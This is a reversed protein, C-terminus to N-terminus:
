KRPKLPKLDQVFRAQAQKMRELLEKDKSLDKKEGPDEDLDYLGIVRGSSTILKYPGDIFARREKNNPGETMDVFVPRKALPADPPSLADDLLSHGRVWDEPGRPIALGFADLVTPTIDIISRREKVVRPANGPVYLILPVRVLEEWVEFGHHTLGHEGFAEGHDATILIVTRDAYPAAAIADFIRGLQEDVFAVEGDYRDKPERGFNYKEHFVYEAHPDVWHAWLYFREDSGKLKDLAAIVNDAVKHGNSSNDSDVSIARPAASSDIVDYGREYGYGKRFFYWYGQVSLTHVGARQVREALFPVDPSFRDFHDWNRDAESSYRGLLAPGLSKSTYSALAYANEFLTSRAALEDLRPSVPRSKDARTYGLDWRFTDITLMVVNVNEPLRARAAPAQGEEQAPEPEAEAPPLLTADEGTCDEDVGNGPIDLAGPYREPDADDCDEGGFWRSAGDGDGDTLLSVVTHVRGSLTSAREFRLAADSTTFRATLLLSSLLAVPLVAVLAVSAGGLKGTARPLLAAGAYTSAGLFILEVLPGLVLEDRRLVGFLALPGGAGSTEGLRALLLTGLAGGAVSVFLALALSPRAFRRSALTALADLGVSGGLLLVVSAGALLLGATRSDGQLEVFVQLAVHALAFWVLVLSPGLLMLRYRRKASEWILPLPLRSPGHIAWTWLVAVPVIGLALAALLGFASGLDGGPAGTLGLDVAAIVLCSSSSAVLAGLATDILFRGTSQPSAM